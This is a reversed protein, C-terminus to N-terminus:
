SALIHISPYQAVKAAAEISEFNIREDFEVGEFDDDMFCWQGIKNYAVMTIQPFISQVHRLADQIPDAISPNKIKDFFDESTQVGMLRYWEDTITEFADPYDGALDNYFEIFDEEPANTAVLEFIDRICSEIKEAGYDSYAGNHIDALLIEAVPTFSKLLQISYM